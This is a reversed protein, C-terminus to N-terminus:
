PRSSGRKPERRHVRAANVLSSSSQLKGRGGIGFVMRIGLRECLAIEQPGNPATPSTDGGRAFIQPRIKALDRIVSRDADNARHSSIVVRDVGQIALLIQRREAQSMFVYGKKARLWHDNNLIVVLEDGLRRAAQLLRLHGAHIPDFGGSTAVVM